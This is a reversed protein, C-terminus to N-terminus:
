IGHDEPVLVILHWMVQNIVTTVYRTVVNIIATAVKEMYIVYLWKRYHYFFFIDFLHRQWCLMFCWIIFHSFKINWFNINVMSHNGHLDPQKNTGVNSNFVSQLEMVISHQKGKKKQKTQLNLECDNLPVNYFWFVPQIPTLIIHGLPPVHRGKSQQKLSSASYFELKTHQDLLFRFDDGHNWWFNIQEWWLICTASFSSV